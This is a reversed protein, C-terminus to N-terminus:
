VTSDRLRVEKPQGQHPKLARNESGAKKQIREKLGTNEQEKNFIFDRYATLKNGFSEFSM